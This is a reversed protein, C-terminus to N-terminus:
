FRQSTNQRGWRALEAALRLSGDPKWFYIRAVGGQRDQPGSLILLGDEFATLDRIGQGAGLDVFHIILTKPAGDFATSIPTEAILAGKPLVPGRFGLFLKGLNVALGEINNGGNEPDFKATNKLVEDESLIRDLSSTRKVDASVDSPSGVDGDSHDVAESPIRYLFYRSPQKEGTKNLGHSGAIYYFGDAYAVGEADTEDFKKGFEDKKPLLFLKGGPVISQQDLLFIRAYRVEDGIMLCSVLPGNQSHCAAAGSINTAEKDSVSLSPQVTLGKLAEIRPADASATRCFIGAVVVTALATFRVKDM